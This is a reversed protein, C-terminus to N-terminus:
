AGARRAEPYHHEIVKDAFTAFQAESRYRQLCDACLDVKISRWPMQYGPDKKKVPKDCVDCITRPPFNGCVIAGGVRLCQRPM